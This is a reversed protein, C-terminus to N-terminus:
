REIVERVFPITINRKKELSQKSIHAVADIIKRYDREIRKMIFDVVDLSVTVQRDSFLKIALARIVEDDPKEIIINYASAIRSRLDDSFDESRMNKIEASTKTSTLLLKGGENNIKNILHFLGEAGVEDLREINEIVQHSVVSSQHSLWINALHTKGSGAVGSLLVVNGQWREPPSTLFEYANKNCKGVVFDEKALSETDKFELLFQAAM